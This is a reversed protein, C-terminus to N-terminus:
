GELIRILNKYFGERRDRNKLWGMVWNKVGIYDLETGVIRKHVEKWIEEKSAEMIFNKVDKMGDGKKPQDGKDIIKVM